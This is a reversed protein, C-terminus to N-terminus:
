MTVTVSTQHTEYGSIALGGTGFFLWDAVALGVRGRVTTIWNVSAEATALNSYSSSPFVPPASSTNTTVTNIKSQKVTSLSLDAEPGFVLNGYQWLYGFQLGGIAGVPHLASGATAVSRSTYDPYPPLCFPCGSGQFLSEQRDRLNWNGFGAGVHAGVYFGAWRPEAWYEQEVYDAQADYPASKLPSESLAIKQAEHQAQPREAHRIKNIAQAALPDSSRIHKKLEANERELAEIKMLKKLDVNERELQQLRTDLDQSPEARSRIPFFVVSAVLFLRLWMLVGQISISQQWKLAKAALM